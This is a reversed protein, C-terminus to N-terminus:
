SRSLQSFFFNASSRPLLPFGQKSATWSEQHVYRLPQASLSVTDHFKLWVESVQECQEVRMFNVVYYKASVCKSEM